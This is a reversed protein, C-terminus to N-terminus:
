NGFGRIIECIKEVDRLALAGYFPLCLVEKVVKHAIPLNSPNASPLERFFPYDSCLPFFYKRSFVNFDRLKNYLEDRSKGYGSKVRVMFYQYSHKTNKPITFPIIGPIEKLNDLYCKLVERRRSREQSIIELNLLGISAQIENMKGNLGPLVVEEENKIGFNKLLDIRTKLKESNCSLAGGELTHFLKTAHFSFMSIDGYCGIGRGNIEANFAHAADYLVKLNFNKAIQNIESVHCPMGYVHVGLIGSTRKTILREFKEPSITLTQDDIDCFIPKINNWVLANPTAPFTFPTTIVEGSLDLAKIAVILAITGNNFLSIQPVKLVNRLKKELLQHKCGNNTLWKSDWIEKIENNVKNLNTTLPQTIYIPKDFRRM